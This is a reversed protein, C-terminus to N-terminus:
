SWGADKGPRRWYENDGPKALSWGHQTLVARVDGHANFEDGPRAQPAPAAGTKVGDVLPPLYENLEWAAQLLVDREAETLIPLGRGRFDGQILEYGPTPACLFLGGEGRTEILTLIAHKIGDADTRVAHAKGYLMVTERGQADREIQDGSVLHKRQALKLNGCVASQGRYGVHWGSSPTSEIVLKAVLGPMAAEVKATWRDILEGGCDFDMAELHGSVAGCVLCLADHENAFWAQVEADTPARDRYQKWAGIAPRKEARKAPLVCLGAQLYHEAAQLLNLVM